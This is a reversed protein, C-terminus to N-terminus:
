IKDPLTTIQNRDATRRFPADVPTASDVSTLRSYASKVLQDWIEPCLSNRYLGKPYYPSEFRDVCLNSHSDYSYFVKKSDGIGSDCKGNMSLRFLVLVVSSGGWYTALM